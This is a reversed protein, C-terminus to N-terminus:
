VKSLEKHEHDWTYPLAFPRLGFNVAVDEPLLRCPDMQCYCWLCTDSVCRLPADAVRSVQM